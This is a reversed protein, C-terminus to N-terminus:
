SVDNLNELSKWGVENENVVLRTIERKEKPMVFPKSYLWCEFGNLEDRWMRSRDSFVIKLDCAVEQAGSGRDYDINALIKYEDWTCSHGTEESGIFIIDEPDHGSARIDEITEHLLNM